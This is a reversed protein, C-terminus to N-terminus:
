IVESVIKVQEYIKQIDKSLPPNTAERLCAASGYSVATRLCEAPTGNQSIFGAISSDGAGITSLADIKPVYARYLQGEATLIAGNEGLSIMVNEIGDRHLDMATKYLQKKDMVGFYETIEEANPKILWPKIRRLMDLSVSKSDIVLKAGNAKLRMLFTETAEATIGNPVSGTFTVIGNKDIFQEAQKLLDADCDFGKFSLRTEKGTNPHITINERIRGNCEITKCELSADALGRVFEGGNENGVVVVSTNKIGNETLARSINIGKGGVNRVTSEALNEYGLKFTDISVHVDFAPNLTLTTIM